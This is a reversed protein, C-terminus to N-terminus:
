LSDFESYCPPILIRLPHFHPEAQPTLILQAAPASRAPLM